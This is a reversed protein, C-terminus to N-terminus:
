QQIAEPGSLPAESDVDLAKLKAEVAAVLIPDVKEEKKAKKISHITLPACELSQGLM